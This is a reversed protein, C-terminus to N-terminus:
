IYIGINHRGQRKKFGKIKKTINRLKKTNKTTKQQTETSKNNKRKKAIYTHEILICDIDCRGFLQNALCLVYM